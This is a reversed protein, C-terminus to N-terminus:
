KGLSILGQILENLFRAGPVFNLFRNDSSNSSMSKPISGERLRDFSLGELSCDVVGESFVM